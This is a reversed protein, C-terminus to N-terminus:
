GLRIVFLNNSTVKKNDIIEMTMGFSEVVKQINGASTFYLTGSDDMTKNFGSRTSFFETLVSRQHRKELGSDADRITIVGGPRLNTCCKRLLADQNEPSLYHLLDG